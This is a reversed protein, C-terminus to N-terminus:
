GPSYDARGFGDRVQLEIIRSKPRAILPSKDTEAKHMAEVATKNVEQYKISFL